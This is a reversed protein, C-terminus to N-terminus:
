RVAEGRAPGDAALAISGDMPRPPEEGVIGFSRGFRADDREPHDTRHHAGRSEERALAARAVLLAVSAMNAAELGARDLPSGAPAVPPMAELWGEILRLAERIGGASREIGLHSWSAAHVRDVAAAVDEPRCGRTEQLRTEHGSDRAPPAACDERVAQGARAGFVLGELLSNSALRNAGHVGTCAVEGAAFLGPISTRGRLDTAVGGMSYHAAPAVPVPTCAMDLGWSLCTAHIRPFRRRLFADDHHTMDLLVHDAGSRRMERFIARAVVDRPALEGRPDIETMFRRGEVNRLVGGEGRLAESLLFRPAGAIHLSTPHFQVFEMDRVIAGARWAIALGDGTAQPPNTTERYIRGLGGSALVVAGAALSRLTGTGEDLAVLGRCAGDQLRLRVSFTRPLFTISPLAAARSWLARLIERGTADGNAHLIRRASHAAEQTFALRTGERDFRAGWTILQTIVGPGEGVMVAVAEEECLGDGAALTDSYHLGVQDEDSLAVAVGGQALDTNSDHASDKALLAVSFGGEAVEIAARLGAVGSGVVIADHREPASAHDAPRLSM